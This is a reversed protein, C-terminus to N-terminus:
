HKADKQENTDSEIFLFKEEVHEPRLTCLALSFSNERSIIHKGQEGIGKIKKWSISFYQNLSALTNRKM